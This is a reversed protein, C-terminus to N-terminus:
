ESILPITLAQGDSEYEIELLSFLDVEAQIIIADSKSLSQAGFITYGGDLKADNLTIRVNQVAGDTYLVYMPAEPRLVIESIRTFTTVDVDEAKEAYIAGVAGEQEPPFFADDIVGILDSYPIEATIVGSAYPAIAYPDFYFCLGDSSFYWDEDFSEDSSFRQKVTEEFSQHLYKEEAVSQLQATVLSCLQEISGSDVIISGLTLVDGTIVNYNAACSNAAAHAAGSYRVNNGYLSIVCQDVRMPAYTISSLYPTWNGQNSYASQAQALIEASDASIADVRNLFDLLIRDAVEPDPMVLQMNQKTNRFIVTGDEATAEDTILPVSVTIMPVSFVPTEVTESETPLMPTTAVDTPQTHEPETAGHNCGTLLLSILLLFAFVKKM